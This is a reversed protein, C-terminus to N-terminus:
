QFHFALKNMQQSTTFNSGENQLSSLLTYSQDGLITEDDQKLFWKALVLIETKEWDWNRLKKETKERAIVTYLKYSVYTMSHDDNSSEKRMFGNM